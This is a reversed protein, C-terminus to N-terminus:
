HSISPAAPIKRSSNCNAVNKRSDVPRSHSHVYEMQPQPESEGHLRIRNRHLEYLPGVALEDTKWRDTLTLGPYISIGLDFGYRVELNTGIARWIPLGLVTAEYLCCHFGAHDTFLALETPLSPLNRPPVLSECCAVYGKQSEPSKQMRYRMAFLSGCLIVWRFGVALSEPSIESENLGAQDPMSARM